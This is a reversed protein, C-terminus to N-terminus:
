RSGLERKALYAVTALLDEREQDEYRLEYDERSHLAAREITRRVAAPPPDPAVRTANWPIAEFATRPTVLLVVGVLLCLCLM